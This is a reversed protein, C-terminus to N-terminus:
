YQIIQALRPELYEFAESDKKADRRLIAGAVLDAAQILPESESRRVAIRRFGHDIARAKLVRRLERRTQEASGFEDLILIGDARAEAPIQRILESVFYLYLDLGAMVRFTDPLTTKDAVLARAEFDADRLESFVLHRLKTSALRNFHFDFSAPLHAQRRIGALTARVGDPNTTAVMAMVFYRSAGKSFSFSVDGAEDGAFTFTVMAPDDVKAPM